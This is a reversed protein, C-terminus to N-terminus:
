APDSVQTGSWRRVTVDPLAMFEARGYSLPGEGNPVHVRFEDARDVHQELLVRRQDDPIAGLHVLSM